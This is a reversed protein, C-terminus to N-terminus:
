NKPLKMQLKILETYKEKALQRIDRLDENNQLTEEFNENKDKRQNNDKNIKLILKKFKKSADLFKKM